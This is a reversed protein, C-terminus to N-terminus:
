AANAMRVFIMMPKLKIKIDNSTNKDREADDDDGTERPNV